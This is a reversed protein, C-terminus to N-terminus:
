PPRADGFAGIDEGRYRAGHAQAGDALVKLGHKEACALVPVMDAPQGFLHVPLIARTRPTIAKEIRRPDMNYTREDPEVPVPTAGTQSVALWTAIYTNSPM